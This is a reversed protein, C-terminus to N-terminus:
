KFGNILTIDVMGMIGNIPTRIEHSMNALFESKARAAEEAEEKARRLVREALKRESIDTTIAVFYNKEPSYVAIHLWKDAIDSYYEWEARISLM